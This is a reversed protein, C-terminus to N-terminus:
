KNFIKRFLKKITSNSKLLFDSLDKDGCEACFAEIDKRDWGCNDTVSLVMDERSSRLRGNQWLALICGGTLKRDAGRNEKFLRKIKETEPVTGIWRRFLRELYAPSASHIRFATNIFMYDVAEPLEKEILCRTRELSEAAAGQPKIGSDRIEQWIKKMVPLPLSSLKMVATGFVQQLGLSEMQDSGTRSIFELLSEIGTRADAGIRSSYYESIVPAIIKKLEPNLQALWVFDSFRREGM